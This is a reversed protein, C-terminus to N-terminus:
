MTIIRCSRNSKANWHSKTIYRITYTRGLVKKYAEVEPELSNWSDIDKSPIYETDIWFQKLNQEWFM